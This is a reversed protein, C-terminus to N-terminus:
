VALLPRMPGAASAGFPVLGVVEDLFPEPFRTLGRQFRPFKSFVAKLLTDGVNRIITIVGFPARGFRSYPSLLIQDLGFSLVM